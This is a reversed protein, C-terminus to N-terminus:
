AWCIIEMYFLNITHSYLPHAMFHLGQVAIKLSRKHKLNITVFLNFLYVIIANILNIHDTPFAQLSRLCQLM